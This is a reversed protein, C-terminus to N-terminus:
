GGVVKASDAALVRVSQAPARRRLQVCHHKEAARVVYHKLEERELPKPLFEYSGRQIATTWVQLTEEDFHAVFIVETQPSKIQIQSLLRFAGEFPKSLNMVVVDVRRHGILAQVAEESGCRIVVSEYEILADTVRRLTSPDELDFVAVSTTERMQPGEKTTAAHHPAKAATM